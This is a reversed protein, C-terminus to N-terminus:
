RGCMCVHTRRCMHICGGAWRVIGMEDTEAQEFLKSEVDVWDDALPEPNSMELRKSEARLEEQHQAEQETAAAEQEAKNLAELAKRAAGAKGSLTRCAHYCAIVCICMLTLLPHTAATATVGEKAHHLLVLM